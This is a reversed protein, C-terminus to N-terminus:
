AASRRAVMLLTNGRLAPEAVRAVVGSVRDLLWALPRSVGRGSGSGLLNRLDVSGRTERYVVELGTSEFLRRLQAPGVHILHGYAGLDHFRWKSGHVLAETGAASPLTAALLGGPELVSAAARVTRAPDPLHELVDWFTVVAFQPGERLAEVGAVAVPYRGRIPGVATWSLEIGIPRFGASVAAALFRGDGCGVDLLRRGPTMDPCLDALLQARRPPEGPDGAEFLSGWKGSRHEAEYRQQLAKRSPVPHVFRTGCAECRVIRDAFPTPYLEVQASGCM